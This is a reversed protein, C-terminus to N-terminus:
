RHGIIEMPDEDEDEEKDEDEEELAEDDGDDDVEEDEESRQVQPVHRRLDLAGAWGRLTPSEGGWFELDDHDNNDDDSDDDDISDEADSSSSRSPATQAFDSAPQTAIISAELSIAHLHRAPVASQVRRHSRTAGIENDNIM